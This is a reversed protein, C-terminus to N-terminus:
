NLKRASKTRNAIIGLRQAILIQLRYYDSENITVSCSNVNIGSFCGELEPIIDLMGKFITCANYVKHRILIKDEYHSLYNEESTIETNYFLPSYPYGGYSFKYPIVGNDILNKKIDNRCKIIYMYNPFINKIIEATKNSLRNITILFIEHCYVYFTDISFVDVKEAVCTDNSLERLEQIIENRDFPIFLSTINEPLEM